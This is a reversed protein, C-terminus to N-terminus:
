PFPRRPARPPHCARAALMWTDSSGNTATVTHAVYLPPSQPVQRGALDDVGERTVAELEVVLASRVLTVPVGISAADSNGIMPCPLGERKSGKSRHYFELRIPVRVVKASEAQELRVRESQPASLAPKKQTDLRGCQTRGAPAHVRVFPPVYLTHVPLSLAWVPPFACLAKSFQEGLSRRALVRGRGGKGSCGDPVIRGDAGPEAIAVPRPEARLAVGAEVLPPRPRASREGGHRSGIAGFVASKSSVPRRRDNPPVRAPMRRRHAGVRRAALGPLSARKLRVTHPLREAGPTGTM